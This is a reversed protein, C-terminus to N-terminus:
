GGWLTPQGMAPRCPPARDRPPQHRLRRSPRPPHLTPLPLLYLNPTSRCATLLRPAVQPCWPQHHQPFSLTCSSSTHTRVQPRTEYPQESCYSEPMSRHDTQNPSIPLRSPPPGGRFGDLVRHVSQARLSNRRDHTVSLQLSRREKKAVSLLVTGLDGPGALHPGILICPPKRTKTDPGMASCTACQMVSRRQPRSWPAAPQM